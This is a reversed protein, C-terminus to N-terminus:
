AEALGARRRYVNFQKVAQEPWVHERSHNWRAPQREPLYLLESQLALEDLLKVIDPRDDCPSDPEVTDDPVSLLVSGADFAVIDYIRNLADVLTQLQELPVGLVEHIAQAFADPQPAMEPMRTATVAQQEAKVFALDDQVAYQLPLQYALRVHEQVWYAFRPVTALGGDRDHDCKTFRVLSYAFFKQVVGVWYTMAQQDVFMPWPFQTIKTLIYLDTNLTVLHNHVYRRRKRYEASLGPEVVDNPDLTSWKM